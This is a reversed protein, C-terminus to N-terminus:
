TIKRESLDLFKELDFRYFKANRKNQNLMTKTTVIKKSNIFYERADILAYHGMSQQFIETRIPAEKEGYETAELVIELFKFRGEKMLEHAAIAKIILPFMSAQSVSTLKQSSKKQPPVSKMRPSQLKAEPRITISSPTNQESPIDYPREDKITLQRNKDKTKNMLENLDM